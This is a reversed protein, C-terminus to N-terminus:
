SSTFKQKKQDEGYNMNCITMEKTLVKPKDVLYTERFQLYDERNNWNTYIPNDMQLEENYEIISIHSINYDEKLILDDLMYIFDKLNDKRYPGAIPANYFFVYLKYRGKEKNKM